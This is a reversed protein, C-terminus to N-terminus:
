NKHDNKELEKINGELEQIRQLQRKCAAKYAYGRVVSKTTNWIVKTSEEVRRM